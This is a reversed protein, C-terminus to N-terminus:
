PLIPVLDNIAAPPIRDEGILFLADSAPVTVQNVLAGNNVALDVLGRIKRYQRELPVTQATTAPNVIVIGNQFDRRYVNFVGAQMHVDDLWVDGGYRGVLFQLEANGNAWPILVAQYQKWTTGIDVARGAIGPQGPIGAAVIIARPTSAKAWFTASYTQNAFMNLRGNTAFLVSHDVTGPSQIRVRASALGVAATTVDRIVSAVAGGVDLHWGDTVNSEFDPNTSADPGTGPWIMQHVAGIPQGLWGTDALEASTNGTGPDVAYEDYWWNHFPYDIGNLDSPGFVAYGDGLAASGLGFRMKRVNTSAYPTTPGSVATFIWNAQPNRFREEDVFYGGPDRYMNDYWTGGNQFPFNERMWGNFSAYKTGAACNGCLTFDPGVRRRLRNGLTDTAALWAADFAGVSPYGARVYDIRESPSEMWLISNCYQDIFIGNWDGSRAIADEFLDAIGEAVVFRGFGDRKALNVNANSFEGGAQNYLFGDLDRVLRRFRTPYHVTSDERASFWIYHGLVYAHLRIDPNRQRLGAIVDPRYPTILNPQIVLANYRAQTDLAVPDLPGFEGGITLPYIGGHVSGYLALRPYGQAEARIPAALLCIGAVWALTAPLYPRM